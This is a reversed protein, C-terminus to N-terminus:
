GEHLVLTNWTVPGVIGDVGIKFKTQFNRVAGATIPGFIGDVAVNTYGYGFRLNHQVAAVASGSSGQQVQVILHTWTQPGVIGDVQLGFRSQFKRVAAATLPGFKGDTALGAGIRFNLLYQIAFVREGIAGQRVVPWTAAQLQPVAASVQVAHAAPAASKVTAAQASGTAMFAASAAAIVAAAGLTAKRPINTM